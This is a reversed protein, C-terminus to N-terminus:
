DGDETETDDGTDIESNELPEPETETTTVSEEEDSEQTAGGSMIALMEEPTMSTSLEYVGPKELGHYASFREQLKFLTKDTILGVSALNDAIKDVSDGNGVTFSVTRGSGSSVPKQNFIQYGYSYAVKAYRSILMIVVILFVVKIILDLFGLGFKKANM